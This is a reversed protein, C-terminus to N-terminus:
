LKTFYWCEIEEVNDFDILAQFNRWIDDNKILAKHIAMKVIEPHKLPSFVSFDEYKWVPHTKNIKGKVIFIKNM